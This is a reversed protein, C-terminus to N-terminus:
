EEEEEEEEENNLNEMIEKGRAVNCWFGAMISDYQAIEDLELDPYAAKMLGIVDADLICADVPCFKPATIDKFFKTKRPFKYMFQSTNSLEDALAKGLCARKEKTNSEEGVVFIFQKWPFTSTPSQMMPSEGNGGKRDLIAGIGVMEMVDQNKEFHRIHPGIFAEEEKNFKQVYAVMIGQQLGEVIVCNHVDKKGSLGLFNAKGIGAAFASVPPKKSNSRSHVM